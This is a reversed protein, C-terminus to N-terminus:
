PKRRKRLEQRLVLLPLLFTLFSVIVYLGSLVRDSASLEPSLDDTPSRSPYIIGTVHMLLMVGVGFVFIALVKIAIRVNDRGRTTVAV